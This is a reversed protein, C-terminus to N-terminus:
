RSSLWVWDWNKADEVLNQGGIAMNNQLEAVNKKYM